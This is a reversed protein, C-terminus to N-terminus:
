EVEVQFLVVVNSSHDSRAKPGGMGDTKPTKRGCKKHTPAAPRPTRQARSPELDRESCHLNLIDIASLM